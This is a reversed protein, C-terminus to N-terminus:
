VVYWTGPLVGACSYTCVHFPPARHPAIRSVITELCISFISLTYLWCCGSQDDVAASGSLSRGRPYDPELTGLLLHFACCCYDTNVEAEELLFATYCCSLSMLCLQQVRVRVCLSCLFVRYVALVVAGRVRPLISQCRQCANSREPLLDVTPALIIMLRLGLRRVCCWAFLLCAHALPRCVSHNQFTAM